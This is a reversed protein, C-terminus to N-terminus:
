SGQEYMEREVVKPACQQALGPGCWMREEGGDTEM